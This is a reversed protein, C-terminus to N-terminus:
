AKDRMRALTDETERFSPQWAGGGFSSILSTARSDLAGSNRDTLQGDVARVMLDDRFKVSIADSRHYNELSTHVPKVSAVRQSLEEGSARGGAALMALSIWIVVCTKVSKM